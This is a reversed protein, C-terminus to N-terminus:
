VRWSSCPVLELSYLVFAALLGCAELYRLAKVTVVKNKIVVPKFYLKRQKTKNQKLSSESNFYIFLEYCCHFGLFVNKDPSINEKHTMFIFIFFQQEKLQFCMTESFTIHSWMVEVFPYFFSFLFLVFFNRDSEDYCM